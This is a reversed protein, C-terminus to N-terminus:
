SGREDQWAVSVICDGSMLQALRAQWPEDRATAALCSMALVGTAVFPEPRAARGLARAIVTAATLGLGLGNREEPILVSLWGQSAMHRWAQSDFSPSQGRFRRAGDPDSKAFAAASDALMELVDENM